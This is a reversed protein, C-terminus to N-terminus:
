GTVVRWMHLGGRCLLGGRVLCRRPSYCLPCRPGPQSPPSPSLLDHLGPCTHTHLMRFVEEGIWLIFMLGVGRAETVSHSIPM